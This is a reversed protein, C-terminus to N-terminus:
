KIYGNGKLKSIIKSKAANGSIRQMKSLEKGENLFITTPTGDKGYKLSFENYEEESMTSMNLKYGIVQYETLVEELKPVFEECHPCGDQVLVVFFTEADSVKKNFDSYTLEKLYNNDGKGCGVFIFTLVLILTIIKFKKM